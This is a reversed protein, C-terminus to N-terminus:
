NMGSRVQSVQMVEFACSRDKLIKAPSIDIMIVSRMNRGMFAAKPALKGAAFPRNCSRTSARGLEKTAVTNGM